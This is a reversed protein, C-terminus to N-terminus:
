SLGVFPCVLKINFTHMRIYVRKRNEKKRKSDGKRKVKTEREM